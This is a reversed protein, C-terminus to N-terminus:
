LDIIEMKGTIKVLFVRIYLIARGHITHINFHFRDATVFSIEPTMRNLLRVAM